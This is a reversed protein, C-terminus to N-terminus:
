KKIKVSKHTEQGMRKMGGVGFFIISYQWASDNASDQLSIQKMVSFLVYTQAQCLYLAIAPVVAHEYSLRRRFVDRIVERLLVQAEM